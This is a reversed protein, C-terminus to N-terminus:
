RNPSDESYDFNDPSELLSVREVRHSSGSRTSRLSSMRSFQTPVGYHTMITEFEEMKICLFDQEDSQLSEIIVTIINHDIVLSLSRLGEIFETPYLLDQNDAQFISRVTVRRAM